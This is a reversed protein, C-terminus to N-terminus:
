LDKERGSKPKDVNGLSGGDEIQSYDKYTTGLRDDM